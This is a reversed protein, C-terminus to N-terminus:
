DANRDIVFFIDKRFQELSYQTYEVSNWPSRVFDNEYVVTAAVLGALQEQFRRPVVDTDFDHHQGPVEAMLGGQACRQVMGSTIGHDQHIGVELVFRFHNWLEDAQVLLASIHYKGATSRSFFPPKQLHRVPAEIAQDRPQGVYRQRQITAIKREQASWDHFRKAPQRFLLPVQPSESRPYAESLDGQINL